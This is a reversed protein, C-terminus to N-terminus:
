KRQLLILCMELWRIKGEIYSKDALSFDSHIKLEVKALKIMKEIEKKM